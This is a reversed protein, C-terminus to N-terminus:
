ELLHGKRFDFLLYKGRRRVARVEEGQLRRTLGPPVPWRLNPNRVVVERIRRGVLHPELGRRTTEVEPLEPM